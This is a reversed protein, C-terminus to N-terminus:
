KYTSLFLPPGAPAVAFRAIDPIRSPTVTFRLHPLISMMALSTGSRLLCLFLGCGDNSGQQLTPNKATM